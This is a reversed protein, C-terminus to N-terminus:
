WVSVRTFIPDREDGDTDENFSSSAEQETPVQIADDGRTADILALEQKALRTLDDKFQELYFTARENVGGFGSAAPSSKAMIADVAAGRANIGKLLASAKTATTPIPTAYGIADLVGNIEWFRATIHEVVDADTPDTTTGYTTQTLETVDGIQCYGNTGLTTDAM